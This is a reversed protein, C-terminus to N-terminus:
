KIEVGVVREHETTYKETKKKIEIEKAEYLGEITYKDVSWETGTMHKKIFVVAEEKNDFMRYNGPSPWTHIATAVSYFVIWKM